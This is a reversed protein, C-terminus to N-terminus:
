GVVFDTITESVSYEKLYELVKAGPVTELPSAFVGLPDSVALGTRKRGFDIGIIRNM